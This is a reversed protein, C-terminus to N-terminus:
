RCVSTFVVRLEISDDFTRGCCSVDKIAFLVVVDFEM